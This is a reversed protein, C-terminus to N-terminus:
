LAVEISIYKYLLGLTSLCVKVVKISESEMPEKAFAGEKKAIV